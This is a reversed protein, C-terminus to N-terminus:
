NPGVYKLRFFRAPSNKPVHLTVHEVLASAPNISESLILSGGPGWSTLDTSSELLYYQSVSNLARDYSLVAQSALSGDAIFLSM